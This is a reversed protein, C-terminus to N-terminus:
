KQLVFDIRIPTGKTLQKKQTVPKYGQHWAKIAYIGSPLKSTKFTGNKGTYIRSKEMGNRSIKITVGYLPNGHSNVVKGYIYNATVTRSTVSKKKPTVAMTDSQKVAAVPLKSTIIRKLDAPLKLKGTLILFTLFGPILLLGVIGTLMVGIKGAPQFPVTSKISKLEEYILFYYIISFPVLFIGLVQGIVPIISVVVSTLWLAFVRGFVGWWKGKVYHKSKVLADMGRVDEAIFVFLAFFFWVTFIIGPVFFLIYGGTIILCMLITLWLFSFVKSKARIFSEKVGINHDAVAILFAIQFLIAFFLAVIGSISLTISIIIAKFAAISKSLFIGIGIFIASPVGILVVGIIVILLLTWVRKKFIAWTRKLLVGVGSLKAVANNQDSDEM